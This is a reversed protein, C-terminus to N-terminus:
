VVKTPGFFSWTYLGLHIFSARSIINQTKGRDRIDRVNLKVNVWPIDKDANRARYVDISKSFYKLPNNKVLPFM